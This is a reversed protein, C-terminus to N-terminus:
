QTIGGKIGLTGVVKTESWIGRRVQIEISSEVRPRGRRREDM